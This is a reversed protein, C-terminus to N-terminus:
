EHGEESTGVVELQLALGGEVGFKAQGASSYCAQRGDREGVVM